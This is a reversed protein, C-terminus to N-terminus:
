SVRTCHLGALATKRLVAAINYKMAITLASTRRHDEIMGKVFTMNDGGEREVLLAYGYM